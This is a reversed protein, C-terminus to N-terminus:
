RTADEGGTVARAAALRAIPVRYPSCSVYDLGIKHCFEISAPDGGHEGCVGLKIQPKVARASTVALKMLQGVGETDLTTFPDNKLIGHQIYFPIFKGEADDRSFGFTMQTLDNTGFSFFDAHLALDGAVLCARPLEIMTGVPIKLRAGTEGRVKELVEEAIARAQELEAATDALPIMIEAKPHKGQKELEASAESIARVQMRTIAPRTLGLRIGRLGMMPNSEHLVRVRSLLAKDHKLAQADIEQGADRRAEAVSVRALLSELTPLFEHLPPDLLRITVPLGDMAELIGYFDARQVELLKRLAETEESENVSMIMNRMWELRQEDFFMHETRCLGIGAAGFERARIADSPTDANALVGLRRREDAYGLLTKLSGGVEPAEMPVIGVFVEGTSGDITIVDLHKVTQGNVSLTQTERNIVLMEAGVVAPKGMGRAVVAAHSTMGGRATLIGKAAALGHIDEPTTEPAVLIVDRELGLEAAEDASFVVQGVAAGPSAALGKALPTLGHELKVHPHLMQDLSAPDVRTIAEAKSILGENVMEVAIRVAAGATRKGARTQLMYLKGREVTFEFDQMDGLKNELQTTLRILESYVEPMLKELHAIPEPTRIGAVVDEGQANILFEGFPEKVGTAPNRTFGVGTGSDDGLNGFVMAQINVATGLDDSINNLRRYTQARKNNWSQFVALVAGQLQTWPDQPFTSQTSESYIKEFRAVLDKLDGTNLELDGHVGLETKLQSIAEEFLHKPVNMVVDGYMQILRRYADWSFRDRGSLDALRQVLSDTLGLNLITDMMGPMSFKAGSRVSLLLPNEFAGLKKGTERELRELQERVQAWLNTPVEGTRAYERCADTTIIFGKPVPFGMQTMGCLNAGKGGLLDKNKPDGEDFFYVQLTGAHVQQVQPSSLSESHHELTM